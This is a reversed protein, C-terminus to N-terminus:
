LDGLPELPDLGANTGDVVEGDDLAPQVSDGVAAAAVEGDLFTDDHAADEAGKWALEGIVEVRVGARRCCPTRHRLQDIQGVSAREVVLREPALLRVPRVRLVSRWPTLRGPVDRACRP